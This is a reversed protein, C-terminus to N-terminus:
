KGVDHAGGTVEVRAVPDGDVSQAGGDGSPGTRARAAALLRRWRVREAIARGIREPLPPIDAEGSRGYEWRYRAEGTATDAGVRRAGDDAGSTVTCIGENGNIGGPANNVVPGDAADGTRGGAVADGASERGSERDSQDEALLALAFRRRDARHDTLTKGSWWRSVLVRRGGYGLNGPRHAAGKCQGPRKGARADKPQVGFLLWNACRPSCPEFRLAELLRATHARGADSAPEHCEGISKTLYKTLYGILRGALPKGALVGQVDLRTGFRVVHAPDAEAAADLAEDWTPLVEGTAPDVYGAGGPSAEGSSASSTDSSSDDAWVPWTKPRDTRYAPRDCPPWWVHHYTAAAVQRIVSRPVTGRIAAHLHPAGRQQPEVAAFYQVNWGVARRLNQVFRDVLKGFHIADRVARRYDYGGPDRAAGHGDVLGYSPLTLTVFLSPRYRRGGTAAGYTKGITYKAVPLRPLDPVDVRRRTSRVRRGRPGGDASGDATDGGAGASGAAGPVTWAPLSGRVEEAALDRVTAAILDDISDTGGGAEATLERIRRLDVLETVLERQRETPEPKAPEPEVSLHWGERCQQARLSRAREACPRCVASRTAGCPVDVIRALGTVTDVVRLPVLRVCVGYLEAASWLVSRAAPMGARVQRPTRRDAVGSGLQVAGNSSLESPPNMAGTRM